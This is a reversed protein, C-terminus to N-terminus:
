AFYSYPNAVNKVLMALTEEGESGEGKGKWWYSVFEKVLKKMRWSIVVKLAEVKWEYAWTGSSLLLSMLIPYKDETTM